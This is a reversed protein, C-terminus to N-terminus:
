YRVFGTPATTSAEQSLESEKDDKVAAIRYYVETGTMINHEYPSAVNRIVDSTAKTLNPAKSWYLNYSDAGSVSDWSVEIYSVARSLSQGEGLQVKKWGSVTRARLNVPATLIAETPIPKDKPVELEPREVVNISKETAPHSAAGQENPQKSSDEKKRCGVILLILALIVSLITKNKHINM